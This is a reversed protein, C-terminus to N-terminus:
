TDLRLEKSVTLTEKFFNSIFCMNDEFHL